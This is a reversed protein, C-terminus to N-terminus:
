GPRSWAPCGGVEAGLAAECLYCGDVRTFRRPTTHMVWGGHCVFAIRFCRLLEIALLREGGFTALGWQWLLLPDPGEDDM